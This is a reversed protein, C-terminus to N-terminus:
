HTLFSRLSAPIAKHLAACSPVDKPDTDILEAVWPVRWVNPFWQSVVTLHQGAIKPPRRGPTADVVILGVLTLWPLVLSQQHMAAIKAAANMGVVSLRAVMVLAAPDDPPNEKVASPVTDHGLGALSLTTLGAGTHCRDLYVGGPWRSSGSTLASM